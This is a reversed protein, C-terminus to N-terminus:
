WGYKAEVGVYNSDHGGAAHLAEGIAFHVAELAFTYHPTAAWDARLQGYAGTYKGPRGATGPVPVNPQTYVADGTTERWQAAGAIQVKLRRAPRLTLSPKLHIVNVYGAYGALTFYSGNPFLPNFTGLRGDGPRRDGSAADVQLGLRPSWPAEAFTYGGLSGVAWARVSQAGIRGTQAMTEADFDVSGLTGSLHVDLIDRRENGSASPFRAQDQRFQSIYAALHISKTLRRDIRAGGYTLHPSSYDDFPRRDRYQVPQSYFGSFRLDGVEYDAWAADYAQRVNPGDRVSVFRQLDFGIEQRGLRLKLVGPGVPQAIAAFAQELDLRNRDVPAQRAKGSAFASELQVFVQVRDALRLDAHPEVRSLLYSQAGVGGAGFAVADNNEYRERVNLGLSLYTEPDTGSLPIYKLGDLPERPTGPAALVSWAEQWRNFAIAPRAPAPADASDARAPGAAALLAAPLAWWRPPAKSRSRIIV